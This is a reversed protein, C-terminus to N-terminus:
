KKVCGGESHHGHGGEHHQRSEGDHHHHSRFAHQACASAETAPELRDDKWQSLADSVTGQAGCFVQINRDSFMQIARRGLGRCLLVDVGEGALLEPPMGSGGMHESTNEVVNVEGTEDDVITYTNSRGFHESVNEELGKDGDTPVAIKM